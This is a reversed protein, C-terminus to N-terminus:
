RCPRPSIGPAYPFCLAEYYKLDHEPPAYGAGAPSERAPGRQPNGREGSPRRETAPLPRQSLTDFYAISADRWWQAEKQQIGLFVTVERYRQADIKGALGAWIRRMDGVTQVGHTYHMVLEDWLTRGSNMKYDWPVHHFWLLLNEPTKKLDNFEAAVPAAYQSVANSGSTTRDFGIGQADARNFYV